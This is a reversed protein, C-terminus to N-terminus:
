AMGGAQFSARFRDLASGHCTAARVHGYRQRLGESLQRFAPDLAPAFNYLHVQSQADSEQCVPDIDHSLLTDMDLQNQGDFPLRRTNFRQFGDRGNRTTLLYFDGFFGIATTGKAAHTNELLTAFLGGVYGCHINNAQFHDHLEKLWPTPLAFTLYTNPADLPLYRLTVQEVPYPLHRKLKWLLFDSIEKRPPAEELQIRMPFLLDDEILLALKAGQYAHRDWANTLKELSPLGESTELPASWNRAHRGELGHRSIYIWHLDKM